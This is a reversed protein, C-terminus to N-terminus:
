LWNLQLGNSLAVDFTAGQPSMLQPDRYWGQMFSTSGPGADFGTGGPPFANGDNVIMSFAGTCTNATGGTFKILSRKLPPQVCLTGGFFSIAAPASTGGLFIGPRQGQAATMAVTYDGAGSVLAIATGSMTALCGSSSAKATCYTSSSSGCPSTTDGNHGIYLLVNYDQDPSAAPDEFQGDGDVDYTIAASLVLGGLTRPDCTPLGATSMANFASQVGNGSWLTGSGVSNSDAISLFAVQYNTASNQGAFVQGVEVVLELEYSFNSPDYVARLLVTDFDSGGAGFLEAASLFWVNGVSDVFPASFSPGDPNGAAGGGTVLDLGVCRGIATGGPGDLIAKGTAGNNYAATTWSVPGGPNAPNFRAVLIAGLPNANNAPSVLKQGATAVIMNGQQDAGVSVQGNGGDFAVQSNHHIYEGISGTAPWTTGTSNDILTAPPEIQRTCAVSGNSTVGWLLISRTLNAGNKGVLAATGATGACLSARSFAVNGRHDSSTGLHATTTSTVGAASEFVYQSLFNSGIYVPRGALSEPILSGTNHVDLAGTVLFTTAPGDSGGSGGIVNLMSTNRALSDVRLINNGFVQNGGLLGFDDARVVVNGHSDIAGYGFNASNAGLSAENVAAPIRAVYLRDPNSPDINVIGTVVQEFELSQENFAVALQLTSLGATAVPTGPTNLTNNNNVGFGKASWASYSAFPTAVNTRLTASAAQPGLLGTPFAPDVHSSKVVPAIGFATGWSTSFPALDVVYTNLQEATSFADVGDGPLGSLKSVSDQALASPALAACTLLFTSLPRM